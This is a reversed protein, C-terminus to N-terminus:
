RPVEERPLSCRGGLLVVPLHDMTGNVPEGRESCLVKGMVLVHGDGPIKRALAAEIWGVAEKLRPLIKKSALTEIGVVELENVEAPFSSVTALARKLVGQGIVDVVLEGTKRINDFSDRRPHSAMAILGLPRPVPMVCGYPAANPVGAEGVTTIVTLPLSLMEKFREPTLEM